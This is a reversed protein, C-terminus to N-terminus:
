FQKSAEKTIWAQMQTNRRISFFLNYIMILKESKKDIILYILHLLVNISSTALQKVYIM